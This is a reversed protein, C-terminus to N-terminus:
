KENDAAQEIERLKAETLEDRERNFRSEVSLNSLDYKRLHKLVKYRENGPRSRHRTIFDRYQTRLPRGKEVDPIYFGFIRRCEAEFEEKSVVTKPAPPESAVAIASDPKEDPGLSLRAYQNGQRRCWEIQRQSLPPLDEEEPDSNM